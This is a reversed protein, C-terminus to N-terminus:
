DAQSTGLSSHTHTHAHRHTPFSVSLLLHTTNQQFRRQSPERETGQPYGQRPGRECECDDRFGVKFSYFSIPSGLAKNWYHSWALVTRVQM